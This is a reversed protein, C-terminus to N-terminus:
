DLRPFPPVEVVVVDAKPPVPVCEIRLKDLNATIKNDLTPDALDSPLAIACASASGEPADKITAFLDGRSAVAIVPAPASEGEIQRASQETIAWGAQRVDLVSASRVAGAMVLVAANVVPTGVTSRVLVHLDRKGTPVGLRVGQVAPGRVDLPVSTGIRSPGLRAVVGFVHMRRRPVGALEFSGDARVPAALAYRLEPLAPDVAVVSVTQPAAGGLEVKGTVRATRELKLTVSDAIAVPGARLEGLEAVVLGTEVADAIEFRGDADTTAFRMSPPQGVVLGYAGSNAATAAAVRAGAAPKGDPGVVRGAIRRSPHNPEPRYVRDYVAQAGAPDDIDFMWDARARDIARVTADAEGLHELARARYGNLTGEIAALDAPTARAHQLKVVRLGAALEAAIRGRAAFGTMAARARAIAEDPLEARRAVEGRLQELAAAVDPQMVPQAVTEAIRIKSTIATGLITSELAQEAAILAIEARVREDTCRQAQETAEAALRERDIGEGIAAAHKMAVHRGFAAACPDADLDALLAAVEGRDPEGLTAEDRLLAAIVARFPPTTSMMLRPPTDVACVAPDILLAGADAHEMRALPAVGRAVADFRALVGDLCALRPERREPALTCAEARAAQWAWADADLQAAAPGQGAAALKAAADAPWAAELAIAPARCSAAAAPAQESRDVISFVVAAAVAAGGGIAFMVSRNPPRPPAMAALLADMSPWRRSPDRDLGRLLAPRLRRPIRSADLTAPGREIEARLAEVTAGKFPREGALAEWLAVCFAFQDTAPTVAGGSWQEPAMYAPTGLLSGTMTLGALPTSPTSSVTLDTGAPARMAAGTVALPDVPPEAERALGFDTVVIRGGKHRLVNHPKFDRHVIGAAHAAALGRGAGIFADVIEAELRPTARLWEALTHGEIIEMAVYDRGNASGVEHVTVVNPHALRAMARAERLLRHRADSTGAASRLVKLAVRRELDPDFAAHVVGMGGAGLERELRYRGLTAGVPEAPPAPATTSGVPATATRALDDDRDGSV